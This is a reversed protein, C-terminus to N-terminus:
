CQLNPIAPYHMHDHIQFVLFYLERPTEVEQDLAGDGTGPADGHARAAGGTVGRVGAGDAEVGLGLAQIEARARLDELQLGARGLALRGLGHDATLVDGVATVIRAFSCPRGQVGGPAQHQGAAGGM